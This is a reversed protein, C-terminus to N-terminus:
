HADPVERTQEMEIAEDWTGPPLLDSARPHRKVADGWEKFWFPVGAAKCQRWVDLAWEPQMPRAGPGTEGGCIVWDLFPGPGTPGLPGYEPDFAEEELWPSFDVPGLAPEYSVFRVAAPTDLLISINRDASEQDWVSVGLHVNPLGTSGLHPMLPYGDHRDDGTLYMRGNGKGDLRLRRCFDRMREPRKTLLLFTHPERGELHWNWVRRMTDFVAIIEEDTFAEHFLDSMSCVFIRRPKRWHLPKDLRDPHFTPTFGVSGNADCRCSWEDVASHGGCEPCPTLKPLNRGAMRAAYCNACAPSIPTCGTMPNFSVDWWKSTM